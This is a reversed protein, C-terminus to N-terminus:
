RVAAKLKGKSKLAEAIKKLLVAYDFPKAIVAFVNEQRALELNKQSAFATVMIISIDKIKEIDNMKKLATLGDMVPMSNDLLIIDPLESEAKEICEQGNSAGIVEYGKHRLYEGVVMVIDPEDDVLLIKGAKPSKKFIKSLMM